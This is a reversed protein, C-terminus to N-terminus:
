AVPRKGGPTWVLSLIWYVLGSVVIAPLSATTFQFLPQSEFTVPDLLLLYAACGAIIAIFGNPNFGGLYWYASGPRDSYLGDVDLKQKRVFFYDVIQMGIIPGLLVGSFALFTPFNDFFPAAAFIVVLVVPALSIATAGNWPVKRDFARTQKLAISCAYVGVITTGINALVIFSLAVVAFGVGGLETLFQTPDGGSDPLAIGAYLGILCVVSVAIGLGLVTPIISRRTNGSLRVMSGIYPWWSLATAIMLELAVVFNLSSEDYPALAPASFIGEWGIQSVLMILVVIALIVVSVAIIPGIWKLRNHGGRLIAWVVLAGLISAITEVAYRGGEGMIGLSIAIQAFARGLFILLLTNWGITFLVVLALSLNSGRAGLMPRTSRVAEIGYRTAAPLTSLQIFFMGVLMGALIVVTGIGAPVYFAIYGGIIFCWTAVATSASNGFLALPGWSRERQAPPLSGEASTSIRQTHTSETMGM